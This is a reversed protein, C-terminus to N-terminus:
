YYKKSINALLMLIKELFLFTIAKAGNVLYITKLLYGPQKNIYNLEKSIKILFLQECQINNQKLDPIYLYLHQIKSTHKM